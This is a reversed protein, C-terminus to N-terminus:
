RVNTAPTVIFKVSWETKDNEYRHSGLTWFDPPAPLIGAHTCTYGWLETVRVSPWVPGAGRGGASRRLLIAM